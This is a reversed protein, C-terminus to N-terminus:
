GIIMIEANILHILKFPFPLLCGISLILFITVTYIFGGFKVLKQLILFFFNM